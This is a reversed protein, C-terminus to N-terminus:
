PDSGSEDEERTRYEHSVGEPNAGLSVLHVWVSSERAINYRYAEATYLAKRRKPLHM